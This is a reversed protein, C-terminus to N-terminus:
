GAMTYAYVAERVRREREVRHEAVGARQALNVKRRIINPHMPPTPLRRPARLPSLPPPPPSRPTIRPYSTPLSSEPRARLKRGGGCSFQVLTMLEMRPGEECEDLGQVEEEVAAM